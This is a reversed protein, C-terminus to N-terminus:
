ASWRSGRSGRMRYLEGLSNLLEANQPAFLVARQLYDVALDERGQQQAVMALLHLAEVQHPATQLIQWCLQEAEALNGAQHHQIATTLAESITAM